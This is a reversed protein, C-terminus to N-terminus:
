ATQRQRAAMRRQMDDLVAAIEPDAHLGIQTIYDLAQAFRKSTNASVLLRLMTPVDESPDGTVRPALLIGNDDFFVEASDDDLEDNLVDLIGRVPADVIEGTDTDVQVDRLAQPRERRQVPAQPPAEVIVVEGDIVDVDAGLEDPTYMGGISDPFAMRAVASICRARLMAAPYKQWTQNGLLSAKQADAMTFTYTNSMNWTRRQYRIKCLADTTEAFVIAGDGHDRYIMSLMLESNATPKGQIVVINSLALMPPIGLESGKQMIAVAAQPTKISAPLLGSKVLADAMELMTKWTATDPLMAGPQRTALANNNSM